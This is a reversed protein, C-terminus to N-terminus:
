TELNCNVAVEFPVSAAPLQLLLASIAALDDPQTMEDPGVQSIGSAMTTNVWSPCFATVRIGHPWGENRMSQCLGMLAFKSVPYAAMGGRVRRGSMSVLVQIRGRGSRVLHPWAARTLWWPGMLNVRWLAEIDQQEGESFLLPTRRLIGACHVLADVNGAWAATAEVWSEATAPDEADYRHLLVRGADVQDSFVASEVSRLGLSLRHGAKLLGLAIARGIGRSAGSLMVVRKEEAM